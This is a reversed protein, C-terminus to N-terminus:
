PHLIRAGAEVVLEDIQDDLRLLDCFRAGEFLDDDLGLSQFGVDIRPEGEM